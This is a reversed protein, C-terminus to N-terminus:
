NLIFFNFIVQRASESTSFEKWLDQLVFLFNRPFFKKFPAKLSFSFICSIFINFIQIKLNGNNPTEESGSVMVSTPRFLSNVSAVDM